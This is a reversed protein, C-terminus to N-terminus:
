EYVLDIVRWDGGRRQQGPAPLRGRHQTSCRMSRSERAWMVVYVDLVCLTYGRVAHRSTCHRVSTATHGVRLM